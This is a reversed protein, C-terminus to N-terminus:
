AVRQMLTFQRAVSHESQNTLKATDIVVARRLDDDTVSISAAAHAEITQAEVFSKVKTWLASRRIALPTDCFLEKSAILGQVLEPGVPMREMREIATHAAATASGLADAWERAGDVGLVRVNEFEDAAEFEM